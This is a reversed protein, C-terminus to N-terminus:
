ISSSIKLNWNWASQIIKELQNYKPQWKLKMRIKESSGILITSDGKRRPKEIFIFDKKTVLKVCDLVDKVSYGDGNGLNFVDSEGGNLLYELALIHADALDTVHIYDRICTGDKTDYDTGFVEINERKGIAADLALPILHTEPNHNEGIEGKMDAGAVNFYRLSVYRLDYANCYDQLIREIMLKSQGYPNIPNQPHAETIPLEIPNGYIACTSSFIFKNVKFEQMVELLNLTGCVNNKYYKQPNKMSDEVDSFAAFHMVADIRYKQFVLRLHALNDLDGLIFEGWKISEQHGSILNDYILTDYGKHHLEKNVHSGIYGAGGVILINM